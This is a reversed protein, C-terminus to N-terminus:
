HNNAPSCGCSKRVILQTPLILRQPSVVDENGILDFLLEAARRGLDRTPQRVLTLHPRLVSLLEFDDFGIFAIDHPTRLGAKDLAQLVGATIMSNGAMFATPPHPSALLECAAEEASAIAGAGLRYMPELGKKQLAEQYGSLRERATYIHEDDGVFALRSHGHDLLHETAARTALRNEVMVVDTEVGEAPRDLAVIPLGAAQEEELYGNGDPAPVLLLGDVRRRTLIGVYEREAEIDEASACLVVSYGRSRAVHEVAQSLDAFFPNSVDAIILGITRSGKGKLSRALENPRYGLKEAVEAVRAATAENVMPDENVVRSVTKISVGAERAVDALTVRRSIRTRKNETMLRSLTIMRCGLHCRCIPAFMGRLSVPCCRCQRM